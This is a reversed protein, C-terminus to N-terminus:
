RRGRRGGRGGDLLMMGAKDRQVDVRRLREMMGMRGRFDLSADRLRFWRCLLLYEAKAECARDIWVAREMTLEGYREMVAAELGRRCERLEHVIYGTGRPWKGKKFSYVGSKLANRNGLPVGGRNRAPREDTKGLGKESVNGPSQSCKTCM